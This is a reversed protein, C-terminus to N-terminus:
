RQDDSPTKLISILEQAVFEARHDEAREGSANLRTLSREAYERAVGTNKCVFHFYCALSHDAMFDDPFNKSAERLVALKVDLLDNSLGYVATSFELMADLDTEDVAYRAALIRCKMEHMLEHIDPTM